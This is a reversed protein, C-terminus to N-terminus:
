YFTMGYLKGNDAQILSAIPASGAMGTFDHLDTYVNNTDLSFVTGKNNAGGVSTLGYFKHDNAFLLSGGPSEGTAPDCSHLMQFNSNAKQLCFRRKKNCQM